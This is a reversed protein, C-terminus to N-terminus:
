RQGKPLSEGSEFRGLVTRNTQHIYLIACGHIRCTSHETTNEIDAGVQYWHAQFGLMFIRTVLTPYVATQYLLPTSQVNVQLPIREIVFIGGRISKLLSVFFLHIM